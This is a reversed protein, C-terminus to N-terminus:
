QPECPVLFPMGLLLGFLTRPDLINVAIGHSKSGEFIRVLFAGYLAISVLAASCHAFAKAAFISCVRMHM